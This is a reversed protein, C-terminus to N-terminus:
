SIWSFRTCHERLSMVSSPYKANNLPIDEGTIPAMGYQEITKEIVSNKLLDNALISLLINEPYTPIM